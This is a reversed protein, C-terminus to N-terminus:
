NEDKMCKAIITKYKKGDIKQSQIMDIILKKKEFLKCFLTPNAKQESMLKDLASLVFINDVNLESM